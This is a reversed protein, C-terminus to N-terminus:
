SRLQATELSPRFKLSRNMRLAACHKKSLLGGVRANLLTQLSFFIRKAESSGARRCDFVLCVPKGLFSGRGCFSSREAGWEVGGECARSKLARSHERAVSTTLGPASTVHKSRFYILYHQFAWLGDAIFQNTVGLVHM